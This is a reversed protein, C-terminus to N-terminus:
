HGPAGTAQAELRKIVQAPISSETQCFLDYESNVASSTRSYRSQTGLVPLAGAKHFNRQYDAPRASPTNMASQGCGRHCGTRELSIRAFGM